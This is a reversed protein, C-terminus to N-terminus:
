GNPGFLRAALRDVKKECAVQTFLGLVRLEYTSEQDQACIMTEFGTRKCDTGNCTNPDCRPSRYDSSQGYGVPAM